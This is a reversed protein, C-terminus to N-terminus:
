YPTGPMLAWKANPSPGGTTAPHPLYAYDSGVCLAPGSSACSSPLSPSVCGCCVTAAALSARSLPLHPRVRSLTPPSLPLHKKPLVIVCIAFSVYRQPTALERLSGKEPFVLRPYQPCPWHSAAAVAVPALDTSHFQVGTTTSTSTQPHSSAKSSATSSATSFATSSVKFPAM